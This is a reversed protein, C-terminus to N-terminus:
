DMLAYHWERPNERDLAAEAVPMIDRDTVRDRGEFFFHIYVRRINTEIFASPIGFAFAAIARATAHGIGPLTELVYPDSPLIGDFREIVIMATTHLSRARRNYGLGQWAELVQALPARSLVHFDPFRDIFGGFKGMVREVQTQQLMFESVLIRYPDCTERWPMSRPNSSYRALIMERFARISNSDPFSSGSEPFGEGSHARM